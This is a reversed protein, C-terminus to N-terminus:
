LQLSKNPQQNTLNLPVLGNNNFRRLLVAISLCRCIVVINSHEDIECSLCVYCYQQM